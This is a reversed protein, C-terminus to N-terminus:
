VEVLWGETDPTRESQLDTLASYLEQAVPGVM